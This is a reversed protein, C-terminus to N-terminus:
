QKRLVIVMVYIADKKAKKKTKKSRKKLIAPGFGVAFENIKFGLWKGTIYHGFEHITVMALLIVIAMMLAVTVSWRTDKKNTKKM